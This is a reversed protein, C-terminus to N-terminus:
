DHLTVTAYYGHACSRRRTNEISVREQASESFDDRAYWPM